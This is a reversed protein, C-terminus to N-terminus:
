PLPLAATPEAAPARSPPTRAAAPRSLLVAIALLLVVSPNRVLEHPYGLTLYSLSALVVVMGLLVGDLLTRMRLATVSAALLVAAVAILIPAVIAGIQSQDASGGSFTHAFAFTDFWGQVPIAVNGPREMDPWVGLQLRVYVQWAALALPGAVLAGIVRALQPPPTRRRAWEVAEWLALGAPVTVYAEKTLCLLVLLGAAGAIHRRSWALLVLAALATGVTETTSVTVAYLLGPSTAVLLGGWPTRGLQVSLRSVTYAAVAVGLVTVILLASPVSGPRGLAVVRALWGFMPHGYRYPAQDILLHERGHLLPDRAMVYYYVGDYHEVPNVFTFSPDSARAVAAMPEARSLKVLASPSFRGDQSAFCALLSTAVAALACALAVLVDRRGRTM